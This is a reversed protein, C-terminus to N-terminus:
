GISRDPHTRRSPRATTWMLPCSSFRPIKCLGARTSISNSSAKDSFYVCTRAHRGTYAQVRTDHGKGPPSCVVVSNSGTGLKPDCRNAPYRSRAIRPIRPVLGFNAGGYKTTQQQLFPVQRMCSNGICAVLNCRPCTPHCALPANLRLSFLILFPHSFLNNLTIEHWGIAM